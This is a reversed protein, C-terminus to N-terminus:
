DYMLAHDHPLDEYGQVWFVHTIVKYGNGFNLEYTELHGTKSRSILRGWQRPDGDEFGELHSPFNPASAACNKGKCGGGGGGSDLHSYISELQDYDHQNPHQNSSPNNTYDMCTGLNANNFNEDQHDLGFDHGVEQCMVMQRWASSGYGGSDFYWDNMIAYAKTIHNQSAWLGAIGLWGNNGENFNCVEIKGTDPTCGSGAQGSVKQLSLVSSQNWDSIATNLYSTWGSTNDGITLNVPNSSREWHYKGWSHNAMAPAAILALVVLAFVLRKSM